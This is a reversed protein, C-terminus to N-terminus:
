QKEWRGEPSQKWYTVDHGAGASAKWFVRADSVATDEAGNFIMVCRKLENIRAPDAAAGDVLFLLDPENPMDDSTTLWVPQDAGEPGAGHPIFAEDKFTWLLADLAEVREKSGVRVVAKWGREITKELLGPLVSELTAQELHYFLIETM